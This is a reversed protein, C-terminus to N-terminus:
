RGGSPTPEADADVPVWALLGEIGRYVVPSVLLFGLGALDAISRSVTVYVITEVAVFAAVTLVAAFLPTRPLESSTVTRIGFALSM